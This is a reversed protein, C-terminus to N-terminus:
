SFPGVKMENLHDIIRAEQGKQYYGFFTTFLNGLSECLGDFSLDQRFDLYYAKSINVTVNGEFDFSIWTRDWIDVSPGYLISYEEGMKVLVFVVQDHMNYPMAIMNRKLYSAFGLVQEKTYVLKGVPRPRPTYSFEGAGVEEAAAEMIDRGRWKARKTILLYLLWIMFLLVWIFLFRAEDGLHFMDRGYPRVEIFIIYLGLIYMYVTGVRYSLAGTKIAAILTFTAYILVVIGITRVGAEPGFVAGVSGGAALATIAPLLGKVSRDPKLKKIHQMIGELGLYYKM